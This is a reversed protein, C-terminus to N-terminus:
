EYLKSLIKKSEELSSLRKIRPVTSIAGTINKYKYVGNKKFIGTEVTGGDIMDSDISNKDILATIYKEGSDLSILTGDDTQQIVKGQAAIYFICDKNKGSELFYFINNLKGIQLLKYQLEADNTLTKVGNEEEFMFLINEGPHCFPMDFHKAFTEEMEKTLWYDAYAKTQNLCLISFFSILYIILTLLNKRIKVYKYTDSLREKGEENLKGKIAENKHSPHPLAIIEINNNYKFINTKDDLEKVMGSSNLKFFNLADDGLVIIIKPKILEIQKEVFPKCINLWSQKIFRNGDSNVPPQWFFINTIYVDNKNLELKELEKNLVEDNEGIILQEGNNAVVPNKGIIMIDSRSNKNNFITEKGIEKFEDGVLLDRFNKVSEKLEEISTANKSLDNAKEELEDIKIIKNVM